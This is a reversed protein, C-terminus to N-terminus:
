KLSSIKFYGLEIIDEKVEGTAKTLHVTYLENFNHGLVDRIEYSDDVDIGYKDDVHSPATKYGTHKYFATQRSAKIAAAKDPAAVIMKYHFEEFEGPKYGGLNLFFLKAESESDITEKPLVNVKYGDVYNIARWGDLHFRNAAAPWFKNIAPVLEKPSDGIGFFVDHQETNRGSPKCGILLM